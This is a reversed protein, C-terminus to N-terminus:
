RNRITDWIVRATEVIVWIGLVTLIIPAVWYYVNLGGLIVDIAKPSHGFALAVLVAVAMILLALLCITILAGIM